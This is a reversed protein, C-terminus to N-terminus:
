RATVLARVLSEPTIPLTDVHIDHGIRSLADEVAAAIAAPVPITGSEGVGRLGEPNHSSRTGLHLLRPTLGIEPASPIQYDLFSATHFDGAASYRAEEYLAHGLGHVWGGLLQGDVTLPNILLGSDHAIVYDLLTVQGTEADVRVRAVHCGSSYARRMQSDFTARTELGAEGVMQELGAMRAPVGRVHAGAPGVEIDAADAELVEAARDLLLRGLDRAAAATANGVEIASRSGGTNISYAAPGTDGATVEIAELPWGLRDSLVQAAMTEHGQGSPTTGIILRVVGNKQLCARATEAIGVGTSEIYCAVGLGVADGPSPRADEYSAAQLAQELLAPYDGGEYVITAGGSPYGTDYPLEAPEILNRRRVEARDIGLESALRDLMREIGFNGVPRAGGRIFGTPATNTFVYDIEIDLAPLRYPGLLHSIVTDPATGATTYAGLDHVLRGRLGRLSGQGDAVMELDLVQGHGQATTATDESRAATWRVPRGFRMAALAVLVDEAFVMGKAGFSGGVDGAIVRVNERALGLLEAIGDRVSFATQTSTWVTLRGSAQDYAAVSARPELYGGAVRGALLRGRVVVAGAFQAEIAGISRRSRAALNSELGLHAPPAGPELALLPNGVGPLSEIEVSV